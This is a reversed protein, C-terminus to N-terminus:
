SKKESKPLIMQYWRFLTDAIKDPDDMFTMISFDDKAVFGERLPNERMWEFLGKWYTSGVVIIPIPAMKKTQILTVIELLEDMTGFGGPLFVFGQSYRMLMVKRIFFYRFRLCLKPDIYKNPEAEFPLDVGIGISHAKVSQAGRNAAEMTGPGGGTIISFGKSAIKSSIEFAFKYHESDESVRTSGFISVCPGVSALADFGNVFESMIKFLRWPDEQLMNLEYPHTLDTM